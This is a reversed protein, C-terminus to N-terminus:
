TTGAKSCFLVIVACRTENRRETAGLEYERKEIEKSSPGNVLRCLRGYTVAKIADHM